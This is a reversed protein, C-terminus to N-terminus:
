RRLRYLRIDREEVLLELSRSNAMAALRDTAFEPAHVTIHTVGRQRLAALVAADPFGQIAAFVEDYSAGRFGSYGNLLPRWHRTSYLMYKANGFFLRPEYFPLEILVARRDGRLRDYLRPIDSFPEYALPARLAEANVAVTLAIAVLPWVTRSARQQLGAVGFGALVAIMLLVIQGLHAPVSIARFLPIVRHLVPYIPSRPLVSVVLCGVAAGVCMRVRPDRRSQRAALATLALAIATIGPFNPSVARDFFQYSWWGFHLRAGTSLYDIWSGSFLRADHATREFGTLRHVEVYAALYPALIAAGSAGAAILLATTRIRDRGLWERIRTVAAFCLMWTSFVLLYVSTLGQLAFGAGLLLADRLRRSILVRDLAYLMVAVFEVHQTQLHPLRVLVHANFAALSGAVYGASWSGTWRHLLLCFAWGTLAFGALLVLNYALVPSGGAALIPMALAGQVLVAESYGLTHREPYFINADFLHRPDRPLQHAVWAIAWTNLLADGNDNRSLHAPDAALPWTHIIALLVFIALTSWPSHTVTRRM